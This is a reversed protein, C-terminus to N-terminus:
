KKKAKRRQSNEFQSKEYHCPKCIGQLYKVDCFLRKVYTNYDVYGIIPDVVPDRHDVSFNKRDVIVGCLECKFNVRRLKNGNKCDKFWESKCRNLVEKYPPYARFIRRLASIIKAREVWVYPKKM